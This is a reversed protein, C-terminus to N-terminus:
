PRPVNTHLAGLGYIKRLFCQCTLVCVRLEDFITHYVPSLLLRILFARLCFTLVGVAPTSRLSTRRTYNKKYAVSLWLSTPFLPDSPSLLPLLIIALLLFTLEMWLADDLLM